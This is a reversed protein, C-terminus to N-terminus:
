ELRDSAVPEAAHLIGSLALSVSIFRFFHLSM